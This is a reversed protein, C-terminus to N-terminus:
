FYLFLNNNLQTSCFYPNLLDIRSEINEPIVRGIIVPMDFKEFGTKLCADAAETAFGKGWHKKFFRYGVDFEDSAESYKLGCWGLFEENVKNIVAWRGFGYKKYHDYNQIFELATAISEFASDGTYQIVDPDLNLLYLAEADNEKFERLIIRSTELIFPKLM